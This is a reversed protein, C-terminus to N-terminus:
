STAYGIALRYTTQGHIVASLRDSVSTRHTVGGGGERFESTGKSEDNDSKNKKEINRCADSISFSSIIENLCAWCIRRLNIIERRKM